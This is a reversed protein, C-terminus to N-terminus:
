RVVSRRYSRISRRADANVHAPRHATKSVHRFRPLLRLRPVLSWRLPPSAVRNLVTRSVLGLPGRLTRFSVSGNGDADLALSEVLRDIPVWLVLSPWPVGVIGFLLDRLRGLFVLFAAVRALARGAALQSPPSAIVDL